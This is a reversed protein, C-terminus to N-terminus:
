RPQISTRRTNGRPAANIGSPDFRVWRLYVAQLMPSRQRLYTPIVRAVSQLSLKWIVIARPVHRARRLGYRTLRGDPRRGVIAAYMARDQHDPSRQQEAKEDDDTNFISVTTVRLTYLVCARNTTVFETFFVFFLM